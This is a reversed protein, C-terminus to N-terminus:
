GGCRYDTTQRHDPQTQDAAGEGLAHALGAQATLHHTTIAVRGRQALGHGQARDIVDSIIQGTRHLAGIQDHQGYRYQGHLLHQALKGPQLQALCHDGVGAAGLVRHDIRHARGETMQRRLEHRPMRNRPGLTAPHLRGIGVQETIVLYYQRRQGLGTLRRQGQHALAPAGQARIDLVHRQRIVILHQCRGAMQRMQQGEGQDVGQGRAAFVQLYEAISGTTKSIEGPDRGAVRDHPPIHEQGVAIRHQAAQVVEGM